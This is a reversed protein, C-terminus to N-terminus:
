PPVTDADDASLLSCLIMIGGTEILQPVFLEYSLPPASEGVAVMAAVDNVALCARREDEAILNKIHM